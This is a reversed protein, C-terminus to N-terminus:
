FHGLKIERVSITNKQLTKLKKIHYQKLKIKSNKIRVLHCMPTYETYRTVQSENNKLYQNKIAEGAANFKPVRDRSLCM